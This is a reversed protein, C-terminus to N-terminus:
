ADSDFMQAIAAAMESKFKQDAITRAAIPISKKIYKQGRETRGIARVVLGGRSRKVEFRAAEFSM